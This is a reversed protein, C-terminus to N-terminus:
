LVLVSSFDDGREVEGMGQRQNYSRLLRESYCDIENLEGQLLAM